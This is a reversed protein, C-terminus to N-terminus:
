NNQISNLAQLAPIYSPNLMLCNKWDKNSLEISGIIGYIYARAHYALLFSSDIEIAQSFYNLANEYEYIQMACFGMNYYINKDLPELQLGKEYLELAFLYDFTNQKYRAFNYYVQSDNSYKDLIKKYYYDALRTNFFINSASTDSYIIALLSLLEKDEPLKLLANKLLQIAYEYNGLEKVYGIFINPIISDNLLALTDIMSKCKVHRVACFLNTLKKRCNMNNPDVKVCREWSEKSIKTNNLLYYIEGRTLLIQTDNKFLTYANDIDKKALLLQNNRLYYEARKHLLFANSNDKSVLFSLSDLESFFHNSSKNSCCCFCCFCLVFIINKFM